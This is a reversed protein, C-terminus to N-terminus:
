SSKRKKRIDAIVSKIGNVDLGSTHKIRRGSVQELRKALADYDGSGAVSAKDIMYGTQPTLFLYLYKKDDALLTVSDYHVPVPSTSIDIHDAYFGYRIVPLKGHFQKIVTNAIHNPSAYLNTIVVCGILLLLAGQWTDAGTLMGAVILSFSILVTLYKQKKRFLDYQRAAYLHISKESHVMDATYDASRKEGTM